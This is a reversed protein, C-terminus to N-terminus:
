IFLFLFYHCTALLRMRHGNVGTDIPSSIQIFLSCRKKKYLMLFAYSIRGRKMEAFAQKLHCTDLAKLTSKFALCQDGRRWQFQKCAEFRM